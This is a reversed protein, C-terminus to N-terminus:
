ENLIKEMEKFWQEKNQKEFEKKNDYKGELVRLHTDPRLLWDFTARWGVASKGNCFDSSAIKQIVGVWYEASPKEKWRLKGHKKRSTNIGKCKPLSGCHENWLDMLDQTNNYEKNKSTEKVLEDDGSSLHEYSCEKSKIKNVKSKNVQPSNMKYSGLYKALKPIKVMCVIGYTELFLLSHKQFTELINRIVRENTKWIFRLERIPIEFTMELNETRNDAWKQGCIELLSFYYFYCEKGIEEMALVMKPDNHATFSHRFYNINSGM